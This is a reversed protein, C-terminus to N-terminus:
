FPSDSGGTFDIGLYHCIDQVAAKGLIEKWAAAGHETVTTPTILQYSGFGNRDAFIYYRPKGRTYRWVEYPPAFGTPVRTLQDSAAGYKAYIRGRDTRWGPEQRGRGLGFHRTRM